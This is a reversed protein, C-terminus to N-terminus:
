IEPSQPEDRKIIKLRAVRPGDMEEVRLECAGAVLLDGTKPFGGLRQTVWGSVTAVGEDRPL